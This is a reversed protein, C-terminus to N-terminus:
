NKNKKGPLSHQLHRWRGTKICRWEPKAAKKVLFGFLWSTSLWCIVDSCVRVRGSTCLLVTNHKQWAASQRLLQQQLHVLEDESGVSLKLRRWLDRSNSVCPPFIIGEPRGLHFQHPSTLPAPTAPATDCFKSVSLKCFYLPGTWNEVIFANKQLQIFHRFIFRKHGGARSVLVFSLYGCVSALPLRYLRSCSYNLPFCSLPTM